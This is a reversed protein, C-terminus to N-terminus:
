FDTLFDWYAFSTMKLNMRRRGSKISRNYLSDFWRQIRVPIPNFCSHRSCMEQNVIYHMYYFHQRVNKGTGFTKWVNGDDQWYWACKTEM